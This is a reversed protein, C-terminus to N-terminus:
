SGARRKYLLFLQRQADGPYIARSDEHYESTEGKRLGSVIKGDQDVKVAKVGLKVSRVGTGDSRRKFDITVKAPTRLEHNDKDLQIEDDVLIVCPLAAEHTSLADVTFETRPPASCSSLLAAALIATWPILKM